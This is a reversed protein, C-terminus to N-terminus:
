STEQRKQGGWLTMQKDIFLILSHKLMSVDVCIVILCIKHNFRLLVDYKVHKQGSAKKLVKFLDSINKEREEKTGNVDRSSM